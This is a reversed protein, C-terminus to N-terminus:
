VGKQKAAGCEDHKSDYVPRCGARHRILEIGPEICFTCREILPVPSTTDVTKGRCNGLAHRLGRLREPIREFVCRSPHQNAIKGIRGRRAASSRVSCYWNPCRAAIDIFMSVQIAREPDGELIAAKEEQGLVRM